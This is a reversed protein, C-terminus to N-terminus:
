YDHLLKRKFSLLLMLFFKSKSFIVTWQVNPVLVTRLVAFTVCLDISRLPKWVIEDNRREQQLNQSPNTQKQECVGSNAGIQQPIEWETQDQASNPESDGGSTWGCQPELRNVDRHVQLWVDKRSSSGRFYFLIVWLISIHIKKSKSLIKLTPITSNYWDEFGRLIHKVQIYYM